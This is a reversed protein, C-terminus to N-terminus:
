DFWISPTAPGAQLEAYEIRNGFRKKKYPLLVAMATGEVHELEVRIADGDGTRVDSCLTVARLENRTERTGKVLLALVDASAPREGTEAPDTASLRSTGDVAVVAGFPFLEGHKDVQQQAFPLTLNLLGDLDQQATESTSDRWSM